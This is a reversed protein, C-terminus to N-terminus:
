KMMPNIVTSAIQKAIDIREEKSTKRIWSQFNMTGSKISKNSFIFSEQMEKDEM